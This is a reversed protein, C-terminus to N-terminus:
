TELFQLLTQLQIAKRRLGWETSLKTIHHIEEWLKSIATQNIMNWIGYSV